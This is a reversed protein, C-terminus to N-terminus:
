IYIQIPQTLLTDGMLRSTSLCSLSGLIWTKELLAVVAWLHFDVIKIM